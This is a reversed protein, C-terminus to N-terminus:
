REKKIINKFSLHELCPNLWKMSFFHCDIEMPHLNYGYLRLYKEYMDYNKVNKELQIFHRIEHLVVVTLSPVDQVNKIYVIIRKGDFAGLYKKHRYNSIKFEPFHLIGQKWLIDNTFLIIEQIM